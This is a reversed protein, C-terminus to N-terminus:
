RTGHPFGSDPSLRPCLRPRGPRGPLPREWHRVLTDTLTSFLGAQGAPCPTLAEGPESSGPALDPNTGGVDEPGLILLGLAAQDGPQTEM